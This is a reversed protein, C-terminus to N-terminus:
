TSCFEQERYSPLDQLTPMWEKPNQEDPSKVRFVKLSSEEDANMM